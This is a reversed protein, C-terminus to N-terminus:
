GNVTETSNKLEQYKLYYEELQEQVQHLQHLLLENEQKLEELSLGDTFDGLSSEQAQKSQALIGQDTTKPLSLKDPLQATDFVPLVGKALQHVDDLTKINACKSYRM